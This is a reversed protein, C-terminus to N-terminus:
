WPLVTTNLVVLFDTPVGVRNQAEYIQIKKSMSKVDLPQAFSCV